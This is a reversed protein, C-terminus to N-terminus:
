RNAQQSGGQPSEREDPEAPRRLGAAGYCLLVLGLVAGLRSWGPLGLLLPGLLSVALLAVGLGAIILAEPDPSM